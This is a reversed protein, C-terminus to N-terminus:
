GVAFYSPKLVFVRDSVFSFNCLKSCQSEIHGRICNGSQKHHCFEIVIQLIPFLTIDNHILFIYHTINM